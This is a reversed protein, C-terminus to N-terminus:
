KTPWWSHKNKNSLYLLILLSPLNLFRSVAQAIKVDTIDFYGNSDKDLSAFYLLWRQKYAM